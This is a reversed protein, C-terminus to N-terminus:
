LVSELLEYNKEVKCAVIHFEPLDILSSESFTSAMTKFLLCFCIYINLINKECFTFFNNEHLM